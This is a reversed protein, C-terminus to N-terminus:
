EEDTYFKTQQDLTNQITKEWYETQKMNKNQVVNKATLPVVEQFGLVFVDPLYSGEFPFLWKTIDISELPKCGGMNWSSVNVKLFDLTTYLAENKAL